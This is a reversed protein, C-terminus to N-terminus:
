RKNLIYGFSANFRYGWRGDTFKYPVSFEGGAYLIFKKAIYKKFGVGVASTLLNDSLTNNARPGYSQYQLPAIYPCVYLTKTIKVHYTFGDALFLLALFAKFENGSSPYLPFRRQKSSPKADLLAWFLPATSISFYNTNAILGGRVSIKKTLFYDVTMGAGVRGNLHSYNFVTSTGYMEWRQAKMKQASCLQTCFLFLFLILHQIVTTHFATKM